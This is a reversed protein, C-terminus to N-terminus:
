KPMVEAFLAVLDGDCKASGSLLFQMRYSVRKVAVGGSLGLRALLFSRCFCLTVAFCGHMMMDEKEVKNQRM